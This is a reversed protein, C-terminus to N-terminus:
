IRAALRSVRKDVDSVPRLYLRQVMVFLSQEIPDRPAAATDLVREFRTKSAPWPNPYSTMLQLFAGRTRGNCFHMTTRMITM